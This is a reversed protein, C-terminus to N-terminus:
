IKIKDLDIKWNILKPLLTNRLKELVLIENSLKKVEYQLKKYIKNYKEVINKNPVICSIRSFSDFTLAQRVSGSSYQVIKNKVNIDDLLMYLYWQFNDKTKFTVYVPSVAGIINEKMIGISGINIRAPNYAYDLYEVKKYKSIDKSYVQKSFFDESKVLEGTKIPSMITVDENSQKGVRKNTEIIFDNFKGNRWGEPIEGLESDIM